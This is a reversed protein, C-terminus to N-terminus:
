FQLGETRPTTLKATNKKTKKRINYLGVCATQLQTTPCKNIDHAVFFLHTYLSHCDKPHKIFDNKPKKQTYWTTRIFIVIM